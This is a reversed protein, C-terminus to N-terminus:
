HLQKSLPDRSRWEAVLMQQLLEAARKMDPRFKVVDPRRPLGSAIEDFEAQVGASSELMRCTFDLIHLYGASTFRWLPSLEGFDKQMSPAADNVKKWGFVPEERVAEGIRTLAGVFLERSDSPWLIFDPCEQAVGDAVEKALELQQCFGPTFRSGEEVVNRRIRHSARAAMWRGLFEAFNPATDLEAARFQSLVKVFGNEAESPELLRAVLWQPNTVPTAPQWPLSHGQGVLAVIVELAGAVPVLANTQLGSFAIYAAYLNPLSAFEEVKFNLLQQFGQRKDPCAGLKIALAILTGPPAEPLGDSQAWEVKISFAGSQLQGAFVNESVDDGDVGRSLDLDSNTQVLFSPVGSREAFAMCANNVAFDEYNDQLWEGTVPEVFMDVGQECQVVCHTKYFHGMVRGMTVSVEEHYKMTTFSISGEAVTGDALLREVYCKMVWEWDDDVWSCSFVSVKVKDRLESDTAVAEVIALWLNTDRGGHGFVAVEFKEEPALGASVLAGRLKTKLSQVADTYSGACVSASDTMPRRKGSFIGDVTPAM